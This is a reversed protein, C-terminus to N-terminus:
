RGEFRAAGPGNVVISRLGEKLDRSRWMEVQIDAMSEDVDRVSATTAAAIIRKTARHAVTPGNALERALSMTAEPLRDDPVVKNIINWRELTAPDYRRGLLAMERARAAGARQAIRQTAGMLPSMGITAEVCGIKASYSCIVLDCALAIELGGGVCSGHVSALIPIPLDEFTRLLEVLNVDPAEDRYASEFLAL